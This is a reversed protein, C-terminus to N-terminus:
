KLKSDQKKLFEELSERQVTTQPRAQKIPAEKIAKIEIRGIHIKINPQEVTLQSASGDASNNPIALKQLLPQVQLSFARSSLNGIEGKQLKSVGDQRSIKASFSPKIEQEERQYSSGVEPEKHNPLDSFFENARKEFQPIEVKAREKLQHKSLQASTIQTGTKHIRTIQEDKGLRVPAKREKALRDQSAFFVHTEKKGTKNGSVQETPSPLNDRMPQEVSTYENDTGNVAEEKGGQWYAPFQPLALSAWRPEFLGRLRPALTNESGTHRSIIHTLFNSM